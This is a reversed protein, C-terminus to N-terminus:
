KKGKSKLARIYVAIDNSEGARAAIHPTQEIACWADRSSECYGIIEDLAEDRTEQLALEIHHCAGEGSDGSLTGGTLRAIKLALENARERLRESSEDPTM